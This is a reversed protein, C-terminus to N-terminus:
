SVFLQQFRDDRALEDEHSPTTELLRDIIDDSTIGESEAAFNAVIRLRLVPRALEQIDETAVHPRGAMLARAKSGLILYQVARPGAGWALHEQVFDAAGAQGVRTQRVLALTYRTLHDSIPVSRVVQQLQIIEEASLVPDVQDDINSTTRRAVEFEDEGTLRAEGSTDNAQIVFMTPM